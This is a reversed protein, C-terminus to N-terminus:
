RRGGGGAISGRGLERNRMTQGAYKVSRSKAM